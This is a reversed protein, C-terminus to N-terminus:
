SDYHFYTALANDNSFVKFYNFKDSIDNSAMILDIISCSDYKPDRHTPKKSNLVNINFKDIFNSLIVGKPNNTKNYWNTSHCNLDGCLIFPKLNNIVNFLDNPIQNTMKNKQSDPPM